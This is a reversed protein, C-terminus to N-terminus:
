QPVSGTHGESAPQRRVGAIKRWENRGLSGRAGQWFALRKIASFTREQLETGPALPGLRVLLSSPVRLGILVRRVTLELPGAPGTWDLLWSAMEPHRQALRVHSVGQRRADLLMQRGRKQDDHTGNARPLYKFSCGVEELRYGLELDFGVDFETAVGGVEELKARPASINAGYCDFWQPEENEFKGYHANWTEAFMRAYWDPKEPPQQRLSGIGVTLADDRHAKVHEAILEPSATVDDDLFLCAEGEALEIAANQARAQGGGQLRLVRLRYPTALGEAMAASGDGSGDDAVIVEFGAPDQTQNGLSDLCRRLLDRRDRTAILVSLEIM